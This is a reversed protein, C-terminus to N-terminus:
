PGLEHARQREAQTPFLKVRLAQLQANRQSADLSADGVIKRADNQYSSYREAWHQGERSRESFSTVTKQLLGLLYQIHQEEDHSNRWHPVPYRPQEGAAAIGDQDATRQRWEDIAQTLQSDDNQYWAQVVQDGLMRQRLQDRQQRWTVIRNIDVNSASLNQASLNQAALLDDHAKMYAVYHEAIQVAQESAPPSLRTRLYLELQEARDDATQELLYFDVLDRLADNVILDHSDTMALGNALSSDGPWIRLSTDADAAPALVSAAAARNNQSDAVVNTAAATAPAAHRFYLVGSSLGLAAACIVSVPGLWKEPM